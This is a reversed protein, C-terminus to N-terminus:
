PYNNENEWPFKLQGPNWYFVKNNLQFSIPHQSEINQPNKNLSMMDTMKKNVIDAVHEQISKIRDPVNGIWENFFNAYMDWGNTQMQQSFVMAFEINDKERQLIDQVMTKFLEHPLSYMGTNLIIIGAGDIENTKKYTEIQKAAKKFHNMIARAILSHYKATIEGHNFLPNLNIAYGSVENFIEAITKQREINYLSENQIDKLELVINDLLFDPTKLHSEPIKVGKLKVIISEFDTESFRPVKYFNLNQNSNDISCLFAHGKDAADFYSKQYESELENIKSKNFYNVKIESCMLYNNSLSINYVNSVSFLKQKILINCYAFCGQKKNYGEFQVILIDNGLIM